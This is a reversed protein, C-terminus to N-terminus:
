PHPSPGAHRPHTETMFAWALLGLAATLVAAVGIAVDLSAIPKNAL